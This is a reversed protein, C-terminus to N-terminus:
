VHLVMRSVTKNTISLRPRKSHKKAHDPSSQCSPSGNSTLRLGTSMSQRVFSQNPGSKFSSPPSNILTLHSPIIFTTDSQSPMFVVDKRTLYGLPEYSTLRIYENNTNKDIIVCGAKNNYQNCFSSASFISILQDNLMKKAREEIYQHGRILMKFKINKLFFELAEKGFINGYGRTSPLYMPLAETPDSWFLEAVAPSNFSYLPRRINTIAEIDAINPGIGGSVCLIDGDITAALPMNVFMNCFLQGLKNNKEYIIDIEKFLEENICCERFECNGRIIFVNEPWLLKMVLVLSMSEISFEGFNVINGLFLYKKHTPLGNKQIIRLLDTIHGKIDGVIVIPSEISLVTEENSFIFTASKIIQELIPLPILPIRFRRKRSCYENMQTSMITEYYHFISELDKPNVSIEDM